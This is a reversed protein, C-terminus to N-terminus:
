AEVGLEELTLRLAKLGYFTRSKVTGVPLGCRVAVEAQTLGEFYALDIVRRHEPSLRDLAVRVIEEEMLVSLERTSTPDALDPLAGPSERPRRRRQQDIVANRAIAFVWTRVSARDPDYRSATRWLNTMVRQVVDEAEPATGLRSLAFAYLPGSYRDYLVSVAEVDGAAAAVLLAAEERAVDTRSV